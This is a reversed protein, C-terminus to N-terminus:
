KKELDNLQKRLEYSEDTVVAELVRVREELKELADLRQDMDDRENPRRAHRQKILNNLVGAICGIVVISVVMEFVNM